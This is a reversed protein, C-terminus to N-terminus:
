PNPVPITKTVLSGITPTAPVVNDTSPSVVPPTEVTYDGGLVLPSGFRTATTSPGKKNLVSVTIEENYGSERLAQAADAQAAQYLANFGARPTKMIMDTFAFTVNYKIMQNEDGWALNLSQISIPFVDFINYEVTTNLQRDYVFVSVQSNSYDDKFGVEYPDYNNFSDKDTSNMMAGGKSNHNVVTNIWRNFFDIIESDSDVIWQLTFDGFSVNYPVTETPGYGYRRIAEEKILTVTPLLANDCRLILKDKNITTYKTLSDTLKKSKASFPAFRVLFSHSPVVGFNNLETRFNDINFSTIRSGTVIDTADGKTIEKNPSPTTPIINGSEDLKADFYERGQSDTWGSQGEIVRIAEQDTLDKMWEPRNITYTDSTTTSSKKELELGGQQNKDAM